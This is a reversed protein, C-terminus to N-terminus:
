KNGSPFNQKESGKEKETEKYCAFSKMCGGPNWHVGFDAQKSRQHSCRPPLSKKKELRQM